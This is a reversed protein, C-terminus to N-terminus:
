HDNAPIKKLLIIFHFLSTMLNILANRISSVTLFPWILCSKNCFILMDFSQIISHVNILMSEFTCIKVALVNFYSKVHVNSLLYM